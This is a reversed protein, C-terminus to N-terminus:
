VHLADNVRGPWGDARRLHRVTWWRKTRLVAVRSACLLCSTSPFNDRHKHEHRRPFPLPANDSSLIPVVDTFNRARCRVLRLVSDVSAEDDHHHDNTFRTICIGTRPRSTHSAALGASLLTLDETHTPFFFCNLAMEIGLRPATLDGVEPRSRTILVMTENCTQCNRSIRSTTDGPTECTSVNISLTTLGHQCTRTVPVRATNIWTLTEDDWGESLHQQVANRRFNNNRIRLIDGVM